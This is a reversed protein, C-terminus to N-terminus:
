EWKLRWMSVGFFVAAFGLLILAQQWVDGAGLGDVVLRLYGEAAHSHPVLLGVAGLFGSAEYVRFHVITGGLGALLFGLLLGMAGAERGSRTVSGLLLGLSASAISLALTILLLGVISNGLPMDFVGAAVGFLFAVQLFVVIMYAFITGGVIAGRDLPAAMLRRFTGHDRENHIYQAVTGILFFAFMVTFSPIVYAFPNFEDEEEEAEEGPDITILPNNEMEQLQTMMSGVVQAEYAARVEPPADDLVGSEDVLTRIAYQINGLVEPPSVAYNVLGTVHAAYQEQVPDIIVDVNVPDYADISESFGAPIVIAALKEGEGVSTDAEERSSIEEIRLVDIEELAAAVMTGYRGDDQNVLYADLHITEEDSPGGGWGGGVGVAILTGLLLPLLFLVIVEGRDKSLVQLNKWSVAWSRRLFEKM